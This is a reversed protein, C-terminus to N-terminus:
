LITFKEISERMDELSIKNLALIHKLYLYHLIIIKKPFM